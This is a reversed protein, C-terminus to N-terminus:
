SPSDYYIVVLGTGGRGTGDPRPGAGGSGTYNIAHRVPNDWGGGGGTARSTPDNYGKGGGGITGTPGLTDRWATGLTSQLPGPMGPYLGPGPLAPFAQGAGADNTSAASGTGGGSSGNDTPSGIYWGPNGYNTATPHQTIGPQKAPVAASNPNHSGGTCGIDAAHIDPHPSPNTNYGGGGGGLAHLNSSSPGPSSLYIESVSGKNGVGNAQPREAGGSGVTVTYTGTSFPFDSATVAGGAGGGDGYFYGGSGGGGILFCDANGGNAVVFPSSSTFFHYTKSGSTFKTGGTAVIDGSGLDVFQTGNHFKLRNDNTNYYVDGASAPSPDSSRNPFGIRDSKAEFDTGPSPSNPGVFIPM